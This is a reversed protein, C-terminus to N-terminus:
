LGVEMPRIGELALQELFPCAHVIAELVQTDVVHGCSHLELVRLTRPLACVGNAWAQCPSNPPTSGFDIGLFTLQTLHKGIHSLGVDTFDTPSALFELERLGTISTCATLISHALM